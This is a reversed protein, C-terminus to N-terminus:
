QGHSVERYAIVKCVIGAINPRHIRGVVLIGDSVGARILKIARKESIDSANQLDQRTFWGDQDAGTAVAERLASIVEDMNM